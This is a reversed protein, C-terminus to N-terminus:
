NRDCRQLEIAFCYGITPRYANGNKPGLRYKVSILPSYNVVM